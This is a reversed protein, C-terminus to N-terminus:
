IVFSSSAWFLAVYHTCDTTIICVNQFETDIYVIAAFAKLLSLLLLLLFMTELIMQNNLILAVSHKDVLARVLMFASSIGIAIVISNSLHYM